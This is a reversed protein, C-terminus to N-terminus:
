KSNILYIQWQWYGYHVKWAVAFYKLRLLKHSWCKPSRSVYFFLEYYKFLAYLLTHRLPLIGSSSRHFDVAEVPWAIRGIGLTASGCCFSYNFHFPRQLPSFAAWGCSSNFNLIARMPFRNKGRAWTECPFPTFFFFTKVECRFQRFRKRGWCMRITIDSDSLSIM